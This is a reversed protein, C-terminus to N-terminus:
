RRRGGKRDKHPDVLTAALPAAPDARDMKLRFELHLHPGSKSTGTRGATDIIEGRKVKAPYAVRISQLHMYITGFDNGHNIHVFLGGPGMEKPNLAAAAEPTLQTHNKAGENDVGAFTVRGDAM